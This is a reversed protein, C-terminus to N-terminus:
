RTQDEIEDFAEVSLREGLRRMETMQEPNSDEFFRQWCDLSEWTAITLVTSENECSRLLLSGRAGPQDQHIRNTAARWADQFAELNEKAVAWRYIVRIM